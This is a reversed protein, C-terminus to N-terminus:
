AAVDLRAEATAGARVSDISWIGSGRAAIYLFLFAYLAATEGQNVLPNWGQPFHVRFFAVAMEGSAIFAAISAFLGVLIMLGAVIEIVGATVMLPPLPGEEGGPGGAPWGLLKQTGHMMFLFGSVIRLLAYAQPEFKRLM